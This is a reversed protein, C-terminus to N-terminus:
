VKMYVTPSVYKFTHRIGTLSESHGTFLVGGTALLSWFRDVLKQQTQKDFYIMVNRCFIFDLPGKVPWDEMLNLHRFLILEKLEPLAQYFKQGNITQRSFYKNRLETPIQAVKAEEYLGAGATELMTKSIDTALIKMDWKNSKITENLKIAITYPEQGSSCGASWIRIRFDKEKEKSKLLNPLFEDCMMDFHQEERFFSTLNTSLSDIFLSFEM